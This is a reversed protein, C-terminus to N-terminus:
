RKDKRGMWVFLCPVGVLLAVILMTFLQTLAENM